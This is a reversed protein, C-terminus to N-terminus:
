LKNHEMCEHKYSYIYIVPNSSPYKYLIFSYETERTCNIFYVYLSLPYLLLSYTMTHVINKRLLFSWYDAIKGPM